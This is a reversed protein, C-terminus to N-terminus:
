IDEKWSRRPREMEEHLTSIVSKVRDVVFQFRILYYANLAFMLGNLLIVALLQRDNKRRM